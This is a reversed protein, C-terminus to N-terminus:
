KELTQLYTRLNFKQNKLGLKTRLNYRHFLITNESLQLLSAMQKTTKGEKILGAVQIETPTLNLSRSSLRGAFPSVISNMNTEIISLLTTQSDELGTRKLEEIYPLVLSRINSLIDEELERKDAERQKLLVRLATNVEVLHNAQTRLEEERKNLTKEARKRQVALAYVAALREIFSLDKDCYDRDSNAVSVQGVLEGNALAPVSLFRRIPVHGEPTGASRPDGALQNCILSERKNLVWGWLGGFKKFVLDKDKVRCNDWVDRTMTPCILYNTAPDIHGVYGIESRTFCKAYELVLYPIEEIEIPCLLAGSLRALAANIESEWRLAKESRKRDTIDRMVKVIMKPSSDDYRVAVNASCWCTIEKGDANILMGETEHIMGDQFCDQVICQSCLGGDIGKMATTCQEGVINSGFLDRARHNAWKIRSEEDLLVIADTVSDMMATLKEESERLANEIKKRDTIDRAYQVVYEVEGVKNMIPWAHIETWVQPKGPRAAIREMTCPKGTEFAETMPCKDCGSSRGQFVDYCFRGVTEPLNWERMPGTSINAWVIRYKRDLIVIPDTAAMLVQEALEPLLFRDMKGATNGRSERAVDGIKCGSNEDSKSALIGGKERPIESM